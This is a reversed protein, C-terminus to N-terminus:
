EKGLGYAVRVAVKRKEIIDSLIGGQNETLKSGSSKKIEVVEFGNNTLHNQIHLAINFFDLEEFHDINTMAEAIISRVRARQNMREIMEEKKRIESANM